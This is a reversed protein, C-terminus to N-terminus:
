SWHLGEEYFWELKLPKGPEIRSFGDSFGELDPYRELFTHISQVGELSASSLESILILQFLDIGCREVTGERFQPVMKEIAVRLSAVEKSGLRWEQLLRILTLSWKNAKQFRDPFHVAAYLWSATHRPHSFLAWNIEGENGLQYRALGRWVAAREGHIEPYFTNYFQPPKKSSIELSASGVFVAEWRRERVAQQLLFFQAAIQDPYFRLLEQALAEGQKNEGNRSFFLLVNTSNDQWYHAYPGRYREEESYLARKNWYSWFDERQDGILLVSLLECWRQFPPKEGQCLPELHARMHEAKRKRSEPTWQYGEHRLIGKLTGIEQRFSLQPHISGEFMLDIRRRAFRLMPTLSTSGGQYINRMVVSLTQIRRNANLLPLERLISEVLEDDAIEDADVWFLWEGTANKLSINRAAAEDGNWPFHFIKAGFSEAIAVTGDTSGTDTVVLECGARRLPELARALRREENKVILIASLLPSSQDMFRDFVSVLSKDNM